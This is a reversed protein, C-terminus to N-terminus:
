AMKAGREDEKYLNESKVWAAVGPTCLQDVEDWDGRHAAKRIRTSSVGAKPNPPVLEVQKAWDRKGGDKEMEGNGLRELFARQEDVSGYQEDPRLTVRLRHGSDFYPSLASFPPDFNKYYKAAFFRTLTDFGVLHIHKPKVAYWEQGETEIAASKDTYYPVTTVGIDVPVCFYEESQAQLTRVLDAAFITMLTLRQDFSAASPAKDANMTAFLLLLRFPKSFASSSSRRFASLVLSQHAISPPNFSSDLIFLTRPAQDDSLRKLDHPKLESPDVSKLLRFKSSSAQFSKLASGVDAVLSRYTASTSAM